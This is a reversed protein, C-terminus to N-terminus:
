KNKYLKILFYDSKLNRFIKTEKLQENKSINESNM